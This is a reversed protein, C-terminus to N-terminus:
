VKPHRYISRCLLSFGGKTPGFIESLGISLNSRLMLAVTQSNFKIILEQDTVDTISDAQGHSDLAFHKAINNNTLDTKIVGESSSYNNQMIINTNVNLVTIM